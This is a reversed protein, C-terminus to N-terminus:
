VKSVDQDSILFYNVIGFPLWLMPFRLMAVPFLGSAMFIIFMANMNVSEGLAFILFTFLFGFTPILLSVGISIMFRQWPYKSRSWRRQLFLGLISVLSTGLNFVWNRPGFFYLVLNGFVLNFGLCLLFKSNFLRM